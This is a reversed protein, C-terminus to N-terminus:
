DEGTWSSPRIGQKWINPSRSSSLWGNGQNELVRISVPKEPDGAQLCCITPIETKMIVFAHNPPKGTPGTTPFRGHMALSVPEAETKALDGISCLL